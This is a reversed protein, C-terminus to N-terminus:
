ASPDISLNIVKEIQRVLEAQSELCGNELWTIVVKTLGAAYFDAALECERETLNKTSGSQEMALLMLPRARGGLVRYLNLLDTSRALRLVFTKDDSLMRLIQMMTVRWDSPADLLVSTMKDEIMWAVLDYIDHFHYYFTQRSIGCHDCIARVTIREFATTALLGRFSSAIAHKTLNANSM